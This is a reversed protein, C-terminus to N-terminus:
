MEEIKVDRQQLCPSHLNELDINQGEMIKRLLGSLEGICKTMESTHVVNSLIQRSSFESDLISEYERMFVRGRRTFAASPTM